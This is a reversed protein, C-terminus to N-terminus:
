VDKTAESLMRRILSRASRIGKDRLTALVEEGAMQKLLRIRKSEALGASQVIPRFETLLSLHKVFFPDIEKEIKERLRRALAPSGGGTSITILLEGRSVVAPVTFTCLAPQDVINVPIGAASAQESVRRNVDQSDTASVVLCTGKLDTKRYRRKVRHIGKIRTLEACFCPSVVTVRAGCSVLNKVKRWAIRGGGVVLAKKGDIDLNVPFYRM